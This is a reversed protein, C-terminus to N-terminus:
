TALLCVSLFFCSLKLSFQLDCRSIVSAPALLLEASSCYRFLHDCLPVGYVTARESWHVTVISYPLCTVSLSGHPSCTEGHWAPQSAPQSPSHILWPAANSSRDTRAWGCFWHTVTLVPKVVIMVVRSVRSRGHVNYNSSM